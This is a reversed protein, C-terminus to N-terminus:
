DVAHKAALYYVHMLTMLNHTPTLTNNPFYETSAINENYFNINPTIYAYLSPPKFKFGCYLKHLVTLTSCSTSM